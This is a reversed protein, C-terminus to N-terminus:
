AGVTAGRGFSGGVVGRSVMPTSVRGSPTMYSRGPSPMYSGGSVRYGPSYVPGSHYYWHYVHPGTSYHYHHVDRVVTAVPAPSDWTGTEGQSPPPPPPPGILSAGSSSAAPASASPAASASPTAYVAPEGSPEPVGSCLSEDVVVGNGDVCARHAPKKEEDCDDACAATVAVLMMTLMVSKSMRM